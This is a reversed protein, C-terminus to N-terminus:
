MDLSDFRAPLVGGASKLRRISRTRNGLRPPGAARAFFGRHLAPLRLAGSAPPERLRITRHRAGRGFRSRTAVNARTARGRSQRRGASWEEGPSTTRLHKCCLESAFDRRSFSIAQGGRGARPSLDLSALTSPAEGRNQANRILAVVSWVGGCIRVWRLPGRVGGEGRARPSPARKRRLFNKADSNSM